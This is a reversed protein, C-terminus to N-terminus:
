KSKLSSGNNCYKVYTHNNRIIEENYLTLDKSMKYNRNKVVKNFTFIYEEVKNM